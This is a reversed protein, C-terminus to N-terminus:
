VTGSLLRGRRAPAFTGSPEYTPTSPLLSAFFALAEEVLALADHVLRANEGSSRQVERLLRQLRQRCQGLTGAYPEPLRASLQRLTVATDHLHLLPALRNVLAQRQTEVQAITHLAQEKAHLNALFADLQRGVLLQKEAQQLALLREYAAMEELLTAQLAESLAYTQHM